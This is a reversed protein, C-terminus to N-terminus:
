DRVAKVSLAGLNHAIPHPCVFKRKIAATQHPLWGVEEKVTLLEVGGSQVCRVTVDVKIEEKDGDQCWLDAKSIGGVSVNEGNPLVAQCTKRIGDLTLGHLFSKKLGGQSHSQVFEENLSL